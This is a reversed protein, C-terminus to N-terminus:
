LCNSNFLKCVTCSLQILFCANKKNMKLKMFLRSGRIGWLLLINLYDIRMQTDVNQQGINPQYFTVGEYKMGISFTFKGLRPKRQEMVNSTLM